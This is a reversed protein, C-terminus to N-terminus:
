RVCLCGVVQCRSNGFQWVVLHCATNRINFCSAPLATFWCSDTTISICDICCITCDPSAVIVFPGHHFIRILLLDRCFSFTLLFGSSPFTGLAFIVLPLYRVYCGKGFVDLGHFPRNTLEDGLRVLRIVVGGWFWWAVISPIGEPSTGGFGLELAISLYGKHLGGITGVWNYSEYIVQNYM